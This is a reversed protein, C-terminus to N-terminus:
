KLGLLENLARIASGYDTADVKAFGPEDGRSAYVEDGRKAFVVKEQKKGEDFRVALTVEPAGLGDVKDVWSQVRLNSFASLMSDAKAQDLDKAAPATQRWIETTPAEKKPNKVRELVYTRGRYTVEARTASFSRFDFVDKRRFEAAPKRLDDVLSPEITFVAPRSLDRAYYNGDKDKAGVALSAQASGTGVRVVVAPPDLGWRKLDAPSPTEGDKTVLAKMQSSGLRSVLGEITGFDARAEIPATLKWDGGQRVARVTRGDATVEFLDAKDRDFRLLAKDRLDFTTRNFTTDLYGAILFVRRSDPLRAYLEGGTATKEGIQLRRLTKDGATRFAVEVKPPDLGFRKLDSANEEVVEAQELTALNTAISSAESQDAQEAIPSVIRWRDGSKRLTTTNGGTSVVIEEIKESEVGAFVKPRTEPADSAPRKREVFYIYAGLAAAAVLLIAFSRERRM